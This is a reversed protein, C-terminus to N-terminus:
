SNPLRQDETTVPPMENTPIIKYHHIDSNGNIDVVKISFNYQQGYKLNKIADQGILPIDFGKTMRNNNVNGIYTMNTDEYDDIYSDYYSNTVYVLRYCTDQPEKIYLQQIDCSLSERNDIYALRDFDVHVAFINNTNDYWVCEDCLLSKYSASANYYNLSTEKWFNFNPRSVM